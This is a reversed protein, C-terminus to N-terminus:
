WDTNLCRAKGMAQATAKSIPLNAQESIETRWNAPCISHVLSFLLSLIFPLFHKHAVPHCDNQENDKCCKAGNESADGGYYQKGYDSVHALLQSLVEIDM